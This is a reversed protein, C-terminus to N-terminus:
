FFLKFRKIYKEQFLIDYITSKIKNPTKAVLEYKINENRVFGVTIQGYKLKQSEIDCSMIENTGM